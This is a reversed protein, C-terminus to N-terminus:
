LYNIEIGRRKHGGNQQKANGAPKDNVLGYAAILVTVITAVHFVFFSDHINNKEPFLYNFLFTIVSVGYEFLLAYYIFMRPNGANHEKYRWLYLLVIVTLCIMTFVIGSGVLIVEATGNLGTIWILLLETAAYMIVLWKLKQKIPLPPLTYYLLFLVFPADVLNYAREVVSLVNKNSIINTIFVLNILGAWAWYVPFWIFLRDRKRQKYLIIGLPVFFAIGALLAIFQYIHPSDKM